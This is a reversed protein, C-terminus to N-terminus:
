KLLDNARTKIQGMATQVNLEGRRVKTMEEDVIARYDAWRPVLPIPVVEKKDYADSFVKADRVPSKANFYDVLGKHNTMAQGVDILAKQYDPGSVYKILEWAAAAKPGQVGNPITLSNPKAVTRRGGRASKPLPAVGYDFDPRVFLPAADWIGSIKMAVRGTIFVDGPGLDEGPPPAVKHKHILDAQYTLAEIAERNDAGVFTKVDDSLTKGGNSSIWSHPEPHVGLQAAIGWNKQAGGTTVKTMHQVFADWHWQNREELQNPLPLGAEAWKAKNYFLVRPSEASNPVAYYAGGFVHHNDLFAGPVFSDLKFAKDGKMYPEMRQLLRQSVFAPMDYADVQTVEPPTGASILSIIKSRYDANLLWIAEVQIGPNAANFDKVRNLQNDAQEQSVAWFSWSISGAPKVGELPSRETTVGGTQAGCAAACAASGV